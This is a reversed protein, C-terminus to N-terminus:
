IEQVMLTAWVEHADFGHVLGTMQTIQAGSRRAGIEGVAISGDRRQFWEMHTMATNLGLAKIAACGIKKAKAFIPHSLDKPFLVVWQIWPNQM